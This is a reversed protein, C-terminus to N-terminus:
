SKHACYPLPASTTARKLQAMVAKAYLAGVVGV